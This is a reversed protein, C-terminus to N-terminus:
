PESSPDNVHTEFDKYRIDHLRQKRDRLQGRRHKLMFHQLVMLVFLLCGIIAGGLLTTEM